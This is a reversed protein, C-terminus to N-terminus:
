ALRFQSLFQRLFVNKEGGVFDVWENYVRKDEDDESTKLINALEIPSNFSNSKILDGYNEVVWDNLEPYKKKNFVREDVIFVISTLQNGLDPENFISLDINMSRLRILHQNLTGFPQGDATLTNNTTGGNLIIFTKWNNAWEDYITPAHLSMKTLAQPKKVTQGYEVVAHGFQIAQQIPSINYPVLGYMRLELKNNM